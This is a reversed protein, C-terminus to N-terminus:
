GPPPGGLVRRREAWAPSLSGVVEGEVRERRGVALSSPPSVLLTTNFVNWRAFRWHSVTGRGPWATDHPFVGWAVRCM